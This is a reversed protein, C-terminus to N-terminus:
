LLDNSPMCIKLGYKRYLINCFNTYQINFDKTFKLYKCYLFRAIPDDSPMWITLGYERNLIWTTNETYIAPNEWICRNKFKGFEKRFWITNETYNAHYVWICGSEFKGFEKV